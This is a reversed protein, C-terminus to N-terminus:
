KALVAIILYAHYAFALSVVAIAIHELASAKM